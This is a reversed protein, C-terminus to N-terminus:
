GDRTSILKYPFHCGFCKGHRRLHQHQVHNVIQRPMMAAKSFFVNPFVTLFHTEKMEYLLAPPCATQRGVSRFTDARSCKGPSDRSVSVRFIRHINAFINSGFATRHIFNTFALLLLLSTVSAFSTCKGLLM